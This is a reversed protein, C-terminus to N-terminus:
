NAGTHDPHWDTNFLTHLPRGGFQDGVRALLTPAHGAAGGNVMFLGDPGDLVLVNGGAGSFLALGPALPTVAVTGGEQRASVRAAALVSSGVVLRLFQRRGPRPHM